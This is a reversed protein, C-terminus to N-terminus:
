PIQILDASFKGDIVQLTKNSDSNFLVATFTGEVHTHSFSTIIIESPLTGTEDSDYDKFSQLTYDPPFYSITFFGNAGGNKYSGTTIPSKTHLDISLGEQSNM